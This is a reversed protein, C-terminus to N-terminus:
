WGLYSTQGLRTSFVWYGETESPDLRYTTYLHGRRFIHNISNVSYVADVGLIDSQVTVRQFLDVGFQFQPKDIIKAGFAIRPNSFVMRIHQSYNTLLDATQIWRNDLNLSRKGYATQSTSNESTAIIPQQALALKGRLKMLTLYVDVAANNTIALKATAAYKTIVISIDATKNDGGGDEQTNALYDTTAAPDTITTAPAHDSEYRFEAWVTLTKGAEILPTEYMEWIDGVAAQEQRPRGTLKITNRIDGWPQKMETDFSIDDDTLTISNVASSSRAKYAFTGDAAVYAIGGFADAIENIADWTSQENDGWWYPITDGNNIILASGLYSDVGLEAPFTWGSTDVYEWGADTLLAIIAETVLYDTQLAGLGAPNNQLGYIGDYAELWAYRGRDMPRLDNLKGVFLYNGDKLIRVPRNPLLYGYLDGATNFFDYRRSVNSLKVTLFGPEVHEFGRDNIMRSKGRRIEFELVRATEDTYTGNLDWDVEFVWAM